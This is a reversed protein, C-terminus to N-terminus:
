LKEIEEKIKGLHVAFGPSHLQNKEAFEVGIVACLKAYKLVADGQIPLINIYAIVLDQAEQKHDM